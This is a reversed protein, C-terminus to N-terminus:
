NGSAWPTSSLLATLGRRWGCATPEGGRLFCVMGRPARAPLCCALRAAFWGATDCPKASFSASNKSDSLNTEGTATSDGVTVCLLLASTSQTEPLFVSPSFLFALVLLLTSVKAPRSVIGNRRSVAPHHRIASSWVAPGLAAPLHPLITPTYPLSRYPNRSLPLRQLFRLTSIHVLGATLQEGPWDVKQIRAAQEFALKNWKSPRKPSATRAEPLPSCSRPTGVDGVKIPAPKQVLYKLRRAARGRFAM